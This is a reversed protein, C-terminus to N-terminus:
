FEPSFEEGANSKRTGDADCIVGLLDHLERMVMPPTIAAICPAPVGPPLSMVCRWNDYKCPADKQYVWRNIKKYGYLSLMALHGVGVVCLSPTKRAVAIHVASTDNTFVFLSQDILAIFEPLSLKGILDIVSGSYSKKFEEALPGEGETGTLVIPIGRRGIGEAAEAFKEVGWRRRPTSAGLTLVCYTLPRIKEHRLLEAVSRESDVDLPLRTAYEDEKRGGAGEFIAIYHRIYHPLKDGLGRDKDIAPILKTYRPFIKKRAFRIMGRMAWDYPNEIQLGLVDYGYVEDAGINVSIIKAVLESASPGQDIVKGFGIGRLSNIFDAAYFPDEGFKKNDVILIEDVFGGLSKQDLGLDARVLLYIKKDPFSKRYHKLVSTFMVIDGLANMNIVLMRKDKGDRNVQKRRVFLLFDRVAGIMHQKIFFKSYNRIEKLNAQQVSNNYCINM